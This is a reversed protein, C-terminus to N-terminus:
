IYERRKFDGTVVIGASAPGSYGPPLEDDDYTDEDDQRPGPSMSTSPGPMRAAEMRREEEIREHLMRALDSTTLNSPVTEGPQNYMQRDRPTNTTFAYPGVADAVDPYVSMANVSRISPNSLASEHKLNYKPQQHTYGSPAVLTSDSQVTMGRAHGPSYPGNYGGGVQHMGPVLEPSGPTFGKPALGDELQFQQRMRRRWLVFWVGALIAIVVLVAVVIGIVAGTSISKKGSSPSSLASDSGAGVGTAAAPLAGVDVALVEPTPVGTNATTSATGEVCAGENAGVFSCAIADGGGFPEIWGSASAIVTRASTQTATEVVATVTGGVTTTITTPVPLKAQYLYTTAVGITETGDVAFSVGLPILPLTGLPANLLRPQGFQWLTVSPEATTQAQAMGIGIALSLLVSPLFRTSPM